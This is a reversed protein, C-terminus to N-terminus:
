NRTILLHQYDSLLKHLKEQDGTKAAESIQHKLESKIKRQGLGKLTGVVEKVAKDIDDYKNEELLEKSIQKMLAPNEELASLVSSVNIAGKEKYAKEMMMFIDRYIDSKFDGAAVQDMVVRIYEPHSILMLVLEKEALFSNSNETQINSLVERKVNAINSFGKSLTEKSISLRESIIKLFEDQEIKNEVKELIPFLEDLLKLKDEIGPNPLKEFARDFCFDVISSANQIKSALEQSSFKKLFEDPDKAEKLLVFKPRLAQEVLLTGSRKAAKIGAEDSDYMLLAQRTYKKLLRVQNETLATGLPAVAYTFGAQHCALVDFYGEVILAREQKQVADRAQYLGYLHDGKTFIVSESSNLYKPLSDDLARGGFAVIKGYSNFIPFLVRGRFADVWDHHYQSYVSLGSKKVIDMSFKKEMAHQLFKKGQSPAYGLKFAQTINEHIKRQAFYDRAVGASADQSLYQQYFLSAEEYLKYILQKEEYAKQEQPSYNIERIPVHAKEALFRVAEQFDLHEIKMIFTFVSGGEGCGFCHYAQKTQSVSFSPTKEVHFPCLGKHQNGAKKLAVYGSILEVIDIQSKIKEIIDQPFM